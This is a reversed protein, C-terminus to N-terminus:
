AALPIASLALLTVKRLASPRTKIAQLGVRIEMGTVFHPRNRVPSIELRKSPKGAADIM